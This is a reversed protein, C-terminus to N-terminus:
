AGVVAFEAYQAAFQPNAFARVRTGAEEYATSIIRGREHLVYKHLTWEVANATLLGLPIGIM